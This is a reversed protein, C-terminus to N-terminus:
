LARFPEAAGPALRLLHEGSSRLAHYLSNIWILWKGRGGRDGRANEYALEFRDLVPHVLWLNRRSFASWTGYMRGSV